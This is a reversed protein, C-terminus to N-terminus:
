PHPASSMFRTLLAGVGPAVEDIERALRHVAEGEIRIAAHGGPPEVTVPLYAPCWGAREKGRVLAGLPHEM